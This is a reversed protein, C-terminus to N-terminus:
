AIGHQRKYAAWNEKLWVFDEFRNLRLIFPNTSAEDGITSFPRVGYNHGPWVRTEPPLTMLKKLSEFEAAASERSSTGGVKGVFLTDGTIIENQIRICMSDPTHGPTHIVHLSLDGLRLIEGDTVAVDTPKLGSRWARHVVLRARTHTQFYANGGTHDFHDHTNIVYLIELGLKSMRRYPPLPDPSPDVIVGQQTDECGILYSYNRDGGSLIQEFIM